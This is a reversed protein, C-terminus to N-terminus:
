EPKAVLERLEFISIVPLLRLFLFMLAVFLGLTGIFTSWDWRTAAYVGWASPLFDRTLSVVVIMYREAWM